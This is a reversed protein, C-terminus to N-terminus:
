ENIEEESNLIKCTYYTIIANELDHRYYRGGKSVGDVRTIVKNNECVNATEISTINSQKIGISVLYNKLEEESMDEFTVDIDVYENETNASGTYIVKRITPKSDSYTKGDGIAVISLEYENGVVFNDLAIQINQYDETKIIEGEGVNLRIEYAIANEVPEFNINMVENFIINIYGVQDLEQIAENENIFQGYENNGTGQITKGDFAVLYNDYAAIAIINSWKAVENEMKIDECDILVTGDNKLAAVFDDGCAIDIVNNWKKINFFSKVSEIGNDDLVVFNDNSTDLDIVNTYNKITSSGIFKGCSSLYGDEDIVITGKKSCYIKKINKFDDVACQGCDNDGIALVNGKQDLGVIHNEGCAIDVINNWKKLEELLEEKLGYADITGDKKLVVVFDSGLAVKVANSENLHYLRGNDNNGSGFVKGSENIYAVNKESAAIRNINLLELNLEDEEQFKNKNITFVLVVVILVIGIILSYKNLLIKLYDNIKKKPVFYDINIEDTKSNDVDYLTVEEDNRFIEEIKVHYLNAIIRSQNYNLVKRGNEYAMYEKVDIKLAEAVRAQSYNYHKRLKLLKNPLYNM